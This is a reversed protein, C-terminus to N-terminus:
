INSRYPIAISNDVVEAVVDSFWSNGEFDGSHMIKTIKLTETLLESDIFVSEALSLGYNLQVRFNFEQNSDETNSQQTVKTKVKKPSGILGTRFNIAPVVQRELRRAQPVFFVTNNQTFFDCKAMEALRKIVERTNGTGSFPSKTKAGNFDYVAGVATPMGLDNLFDKLMTDYPTGSPYVRTTISEKQIEGGDEFIMETVKDTDRLTESYSALTGQFLLGIGDDDWGAEFKVTVPYSPDESLLNSISDSINYFTFKAVDPKDTKSDRTISFRMSHNTLVYGNGSSIEEPFNDDLDIYPKGQNRERYPVKLNAATDQSASGVSLPRGLTFRYKHGFAV